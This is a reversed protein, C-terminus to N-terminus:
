NGPPLLGSPRWCSGTTSTTSRAEIDADVVWRRRGQSCALVQIPRIADHAARGPRFGFSTAQFRAEWEPALANKVRAQMSRDLVTPIGAPPAQRQGQSICGDRLSPRGPQTHRQLQEAIM